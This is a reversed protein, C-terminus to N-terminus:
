VRRLALRLPAQRALDFPEAVLADWHEGSGPALDVSALEHVVQVADSGGTDSVAGIRYCTRLIEHRLLLSRLAERLAARDLPGTLTLVFPEHYASSAPARLQALLIAAQARTLPAERLPAGLVIM